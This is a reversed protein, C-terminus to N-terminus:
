LSKEKSLHKIERQVEELSLQINNDKIFKEIILVSNKLFDTVYTAVDLGLTPKMKLCAMVLEDHGDANACSLLLVFKQEITEAAECLASLEKLTGSFKKFSPYVLEARNTVFFEKIQTQIEPTM